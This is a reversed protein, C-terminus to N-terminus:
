ASIVGSWPWSSACGSNPSPAVHASLLAAAPCSLIPHSPVPVQPSLPQAMAPPQLCSNRHGDRYWSPLQLCCLRRSSGMPVAPMCTAGEMGHWLPTPICGLPGCLRFEGDWFLQTPLAAARGHEPDPQSHQAPSCHVQHVPTQRGHPPCSALRPASSFRPCSSIAILQQLTCTHRSLPWCGPSLAAHQSRHQVARGVCCPPM